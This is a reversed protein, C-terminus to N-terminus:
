ALGLEERTARPEIYKGSIANLYIHCKYVTPTMENEYREYFNYSTDWVPIQYGVTRKGPIDILASGLKIETIEVYYEKVFEPQVSHNLVAQQKITQLIRDFEILKVESEIIKNQRGAGRIDYIAVGSSDITIFVCELSWPGANVPDPSGIWTSCDGVFATQLGACDRTFCFKWGASTQMGDTYCISKTVYLQKIMSDVNLDKLCKEAIIQADELSIQPQIIKLDNEEKYGEANDKTVWFENINRRYQYYNGGFQGGIVAWTQDKPHYTFAFYISQDPVRNLNFKEASFNANYNESFAPETLWVAEPQFYDMVTKIDKKRFAEKRIEAVCFGRKQPLIVEADIDILLTAIQERNVVRSPAYYEVSEEVKIQPNSCVCVIIVVALTLGIIHKM